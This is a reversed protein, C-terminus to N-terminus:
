LCIKEQCQANLRIMGSVPSLPTQPVVHDPNSVTEQDHFPSCTSQEGHAYPDSSESTHGPVSHTMIYKYCIKLTMSLVTPARNEMTMHIVAKM